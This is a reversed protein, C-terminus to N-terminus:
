RLRTEARPPNIILSSLETDIWNRRGKWDIGHNTM